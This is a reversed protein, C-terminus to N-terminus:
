SKGQYWRKLLWPVIWSYLVFILYVIAIMGALPTMGITRLLMILLLVGIWIKISGFRQFPIIPWLLPHTAQRTERAISVIERNSPDIRAAKSLAQSAKNAEGQEIHAAGIMTHAFVDDPDDALIQRSSQLVQQDKGQLYALTVRVQRVFQDEPDLQEARQLLQEAKAFQGARAVLRAYRSLLWPHDPSLRLASLLTTEAGALDNLHELAVSRWYLLDISTPDNKLGADVAKVTDAYRGLLFFAQGRMSWADSNDFTSDGLNSLTELAQEPRKITLYHRALALSKEHELM